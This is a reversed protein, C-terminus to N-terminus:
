HHHHFLTTLIILIIGVLIGILMNKKKKTNLIQPLLELLVIYLLMGCTIALLIGIICENIMGSLIFMILGGVFTSISLIVSNIVLDKKNNITSSIVIGLPINHLGVALVLLLGAHIDHMATVYLTMGEIINHIVIAISSLLGVHMLHENHCDDNKHKHSHHSEHEHHPVLKDLLSLSIFGILVGIILVALGGNSINENLHMYAHPLIEKFLLLSMVGFALGVSLDIFWKHKKLYSGLFLGLLLFLGVLLTFLLEIM